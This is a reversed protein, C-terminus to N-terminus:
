AGVKQEVAILEVGLEEFRRMFGHLQAQDLMRGIKLGRLAQGGGGRGLMLVADRPRM